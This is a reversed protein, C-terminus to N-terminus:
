AKVSLLLWSIPNVAKIYRFVAFVTCFWMMKSLMFLSIRCCAKHKEWWRYEKRWSSYCGGCQQAALATSSSLHLCILTSVRQLGEASTVIQSFCRLIIDRCERFLPDFVIKPEDVKLKIIMVQPMVYQLENYEDGFDNGEQSRLCLLAQIFFESYGVVKSNDVCVHWSQGGVMSMWM